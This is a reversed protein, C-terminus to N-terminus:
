TKISFSAVITLLSIISCCSFAFNELLWNIDGLVEYGNVLKGHTSKDDDVFGVLDWEQNFDNIREVLWAVEKGFGSAGIIVLKKM